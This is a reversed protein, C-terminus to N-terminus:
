VEVSWEKGGLKAKGNACLLDFTGDEWEKRFNVLRAALLRMVNPPYKGEKESVRHENVERLQSQGMLFTLMQEEGIKVRYLRYCHYLRFYEVLSGDEPLLFRVLCTLGEPTLLEAFHPVATAQEAKGRKSAQKGAFLRVVFGEIVPVLGGRARCKSLPRYFEEKSRGLRANAKLIIAGNYFFELCRGESPAKPCFALINSLPHLDWLALALKTGVRVKANDRLYSFLLNGEGIAAWVAEWGDSLLLYVVALKDNICKDRVVVNLSRGIACSLCERLFSPDTKEMLITRKHIEVLINSPHCQKNALDPWYLQHRLLKFCVASYHSLFQEYGVREKSFRENLVGYVDLVSLETLPCQVRCLVCQVGGCSGCVHGYKRDLM